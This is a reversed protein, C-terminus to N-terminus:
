PAPILSELLRRTVAPSPTGFLRRLLFYEPLPHDDDSDESGRDALCHFRPVGVRASDAQKVKTWIHWDYRRITDDYTTSDPLQVNPLM